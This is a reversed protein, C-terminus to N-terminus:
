YAFTKYNINTCFFYPTSFLPAAWLANFQGLNSKKCHKPLSIKKRITVYLSLFDGTLIGLHAGWYIKLNQTFPPLGPPVLTVLIWMKQWIQVFVLFITKYNNCIIIFFGWNTHGRKSFCIHASFHLHHSCPLLGPPM